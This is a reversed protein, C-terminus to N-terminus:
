NDNEERLWNVEGTALNHIYSAGGEFVVRHGSACMRKVSGLPKAVPAAQFTMGRLTGEQTLLPLKQEGLNLIPQGTALSYCMGSRSAETDKIPHQLVLNYPIVTEAAGSDVAMSLLQWGDETMGLENLHYGEYNWNASQNFQSRDPALIPVGPVSRTAEFELREALCISRIRDAEEQFERDAKHKSQCSM